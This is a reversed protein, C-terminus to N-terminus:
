TVEYVLIANSMVIPPVEPTPPSCLLANGTEKYMSQKNIDYESGLGPKPPCALLPCALYRHKCIIGPKKCDLHDLRQSKNKTNQLM